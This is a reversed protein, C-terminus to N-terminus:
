GIKWAGDYYVPVKNSGSGAVTSAFTTASADTVFARQGISPSSPLTAVTYVTPAATTSAPQVTENVFRILGANVLESVRVFSDKPDGRVRQGIEAVEKLQKLVTTHNELDKTPTQIATGKIATPTTSGM